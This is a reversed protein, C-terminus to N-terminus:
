AVHTTRGFLANVLPDGRKEAKKSFYVAEGYARRRDGAEGHKTNKRYRRSYVATGEPKIKAADKGPGMAYVAKFAGRTGTSRRWGKIHCENDARMIRLWRRVTSDALDPLRAAIELRTGPLADAVRQRHGVTPM